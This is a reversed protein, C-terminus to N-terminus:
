RPGIGDFMVEVDDREHLGQGTGGVGWREVAVPRTAATTLATRRASAKKAKSTAPASQVDDLQVALEDVRRSVDQMNLFNASAAPDVYDAMEKVGNSSKTFDYKAEDKGSGLCNEYTFKKMRLIMNIWNILKDPNVTLELHRFEVTGHRGLSKFNCGYYRGSTDVASSFEQGDRARLIRILDTNAVSYPLCYGTYRRREGAVGFFMDELMYYSLLFQRVGMLSDGRGNAIRYGSRRTFDVHVHTSTRFSSNNEESFNAKNVEDYFSDIASLLEKGCLPDATIYEIGNRLSGDAVSNWGDPVKRLRLAEVEQEIGLFQDPIALKNDPTTLRPSRVGMVDIVSVDLMNSLSM